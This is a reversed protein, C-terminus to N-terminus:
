ASCSRTTPTSAKRLPIIQLLLYFALQPPILAMLPIYLHSVVLLILLGDDTSDCLQIFVRM